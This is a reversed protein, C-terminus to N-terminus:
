TSIINIRVSANWNLQAAAQLSLHFISCPSLCLFPPLMGCRLLSIWNIWSVWVEGVVKLYLWKEQYRVGGDSAVLNCVVSFEFIFPSGFLPAPCCSLVPLVTLHGTVFARDNRNQNLWSFLGSKKNFYANSYISSTREEIKDVSIIIFWM